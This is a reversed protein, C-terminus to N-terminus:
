VEEKAYVNAYARAEAEVLQDYYDTFFLWKGDPLAVPLIYYDPDLNVAYLLDM